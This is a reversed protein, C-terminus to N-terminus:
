TTDYGLQALALRIGHDAIEQVTVPEGADLAGEAQKMKQHCAAKTLRTATSQRLRMTRSTWPEARDALPKNGPSPRSQAFDVLKPDQSESSKSADLRSSRRSGTKAKGVAGDALFAAAREPDVGPELDSLEYKDALRVTNDRKAM